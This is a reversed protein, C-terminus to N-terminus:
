GALIVVALLGVGLAGCLAEVPRSGLFRGVGGPLPRWGPRQLRPAPWLVALGAFSAILVIAAAWGFLWEPIPLNSRQVLGHAEAAAPALAGAAAVGALVALWTRHRM